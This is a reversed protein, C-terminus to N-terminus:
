FVVVLAFWCGYVGRYFFLMLSLCGLVVLFFVVLLGVSRVYCVLIILAVEFLGLLGICIIRVM